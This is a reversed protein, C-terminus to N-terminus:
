YLNTLTETMGVIPTEPSAVFIEVRRNRERSQPTDNAAIPQTEGYGAVGMRQEPLGNERLYAAVTMARAASLGWNDGYLQRADPSKVDRDDTHGVVLVKLPEAEPSRVIASFERLLQKAGPKLDARGSDFLVDMDLKSIGTQPDFHLSPYKKALQALQGSVGLPMPRRRDGLTERLRERERDFNAITRRDIARQEDLRALENEARALQDEVTRSHAKLNAIEALHARSEESLRRNESQITRVLSPSASTCGGLFVLGFIAASFARAACTRADKSKM